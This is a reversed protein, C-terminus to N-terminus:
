AVKLSKKIEREKRKREKIEKLQNIAEITADDFDDYYERDCYDNNAQMYELSDSMLYYGSRSNDTWRKRNPNWDDESVFEFYYDGEKRYNFTAKAFDADVKSKSVIVFTDIQGNYVKYIESGRKLSKPNKIM